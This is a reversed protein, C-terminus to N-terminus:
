KKLFGGTTQKTYTKKRYKKKGYRDESCSWVIGKVVKKYKGCM